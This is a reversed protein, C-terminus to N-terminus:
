SHHFEVNAIAGNTNARLYIQQLYVVRPYMQMINTDGAALELGQQTGDNATGQDGKYVIKSGNTKSAQISLYSVESIETIAVSAAPSAPKVTYGTQSGKTILTYLNQAPQTIDTITITIAPM